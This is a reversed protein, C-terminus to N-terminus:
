FKLDEYTVSTVRVGECSWYIDHKKMLRAIEYSQKRNSLANEDGIDIGGINYKKKLEVIHTDLDNSSYIRYGKTSRQCFTCRAVCGRSTEVEGIRKNINKEYFKLGIPTETLPSHNKIPEFFEHVM